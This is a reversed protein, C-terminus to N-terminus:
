IVFEKKVVNDKVVTEGEGVYENRHSLSILEGTDPIAYEYPEVEVRQISGPLDTGILSECMTENFTCAVRATRATFYTRNTEKSKVAELGGQVVLAHFETGDEKEYTKYDVIKVM